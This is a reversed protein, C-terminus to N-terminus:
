GELCVDLSTAKLRGLPVDDREVPIDDQTEGTGNPPRFFKMSQLNRDAATPEAISWNREQHDAAKRLSLMIRSVM